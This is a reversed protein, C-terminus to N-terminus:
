DQALPPPLLFDLPQYREVMDVPSFGCGSDLHIYGGSGTVFVMGLDNGGGIANAFFVVHEARPDTHGDATAVAYLRIQDSIPARWGRQMDDPTLIGGHCGVVTMIELPTGPPVGDPCQPPPGYWDNTTTTACPSSEYRALARLRDADQALYADVIADVTPIGTRTDLPHGFPPHISGLLWRFTVIVGTRADDHDRWRSSDGLELVLNEGWLTDGAATCGDHRSNPPGGTPLRWDAEMAEPSPYVWLVFSPLSPAGYVHGHASAGACSLGQAKPAYALGAAVLAEVFDEGSIPSGEAPSPELAIDTRAPIPTATPVVSATASPTPTAVTAPDSPSCAVVAAAALLAVAALFAALRTRVTRLYTM